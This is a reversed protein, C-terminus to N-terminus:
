YSFMLRLYMGTGLGKVKDNLKGFVTQGLLMVEWNEQISYSLSSMGFFAKLGHMYFMSLSGNLAPNFAGSGQIFSSIKSPMLNKASLNGWLHQFPNTSNLSQNSGGSNYLLSTNIYLGNKFSYDLTISSSLVGNTDSLNEKPQFWTAEGKFGMDKLNGAWGGGIAMDTYYNGTLIQIDYKWKNFKWLGALISKDLSEGPQVAMEISSMGKMFYQIRLADSGPREQYDFDILTYANFLDNPNWALNVGWNIRQRGLRIELKDSTYKMYARDFISHVVLAERDMLIFSLDMQGMDRDLTSSLLSNSKTEEGYFIRNRMEVVATLDDSIFAKLNIRNHLLNDTRIHDLSSTISATNMYRVYGGLSFYDKFAKKEQADALVCMLSICLFSILSKFSSNM